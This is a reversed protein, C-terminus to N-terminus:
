GKPIGDGGNVFGAEVVLNNIESIAVQLDDVTEVTRGQMVQKYQDPRTKGLETLEQWESTETIDFPVETQEGDGQGQGSREELKALLYAHLESGSATQIFKKDAKIKYFWFMDRLKVVKAKSYRTQLEEKAPEYDIYAKTQRIDDQIGPKEETKKETEGSWKDFAKVFGDLNDRAMDVVDYLTYNYNEATEILFKELREPDIPQKGKTALTFNINETFKQGPTLDSIDVETAKKRLDIAKDFMKGLHENQSLTRGQDRDEPPLDVGYMGNETQPEEIPKGAMNKGPPPGNYAQRNGTFKPQEEEPAPTEEPKGNPYVAQDFTIEEDASIVSEPYFEEAIDTETDTESMLLNGTILRKAEVEIHEIRARSQAGDLAMKYGEERLKQISGPYELGVVYVTMTKQSGPILVTKPRVAMNIKVGALIGGTIRQILAMSSIINVVSNYSTTRFKYVGGVMQMDDLIVSLVGTVKCRYKDAKFDPASRECPCPRAHRSGDKNKRLAHEGDGTCWLQTGTFCAYRSQFNLAPDDYLLRVPIVKPQQGVIEHIKPDRIFNGDQGRELGTIIFHDVRQPLQFTKGGRSEKMAGKMGIKIKGVEPLGPVLNKIQPALNPLTSFTKQEETM